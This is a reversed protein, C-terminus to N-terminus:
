NELSKRLEEPIKTSKMTKTNVFVNVTYGEALLKNDNKRIIEYHFKISSNGINEITTKIIIVDNYKASQKYICKVEVVPVILDRKEIDSYDFGYRRLIETRGMEFWRLYNAYYVVGEHDTDAYYIRQEIQNTKM